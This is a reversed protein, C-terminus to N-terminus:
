QIVGAKKFHRRLIRNGFLCGLIALVVTFVCALVMHWPKSLMNIQMAFVGESFGASSAQEVYSDWAALIPVANGFEWGLGWVAWGITNRLPSRYANKGIMAVECVVAVGVFYPLMFMYGMLGMILGMVTGWVFFIGRKNLRNATVLYFTACLFMQIGACAYLYVFPFPLTLPGTVFCVALAVVMMAAITMVDRITIRKKVQENNSM